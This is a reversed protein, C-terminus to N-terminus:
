NTFGMHAADRIEDGMPTLDATELSFYIWFPLPPSPGDWRGRSTGARMGPSALLIHSDGATATVVRGREPRCAGRPEEPMGEQGPRTPPRGKARAEHQRRGTGRPVQFPSPHESRDALPSESIDRITLSARPAMWLGRPRGWAVGLM